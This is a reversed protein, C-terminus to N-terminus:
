SHGVGFGSVGGRPRCLVYTYICLIIICAGHVLTDVCTCVYLMCLTCWTCIACVRVYVCCVCVCCVCVICM